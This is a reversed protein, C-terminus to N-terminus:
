EWWDKYSDKFGDEFAELAAPEIMRFGYRKIRARAILRDILKPYAEAYAEKTGKLVFHDLEDWQKTPDLFYEESELIEEISSDSTLVVGTMKLEPDYQGLFKEKLM